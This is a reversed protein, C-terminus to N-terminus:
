SITCFVSGVQHSEGPALESVRTGGPVLFAFVYGHPARLEPHGSEAFREHLRESAIRYPERLLIGLNPQPQDAPMQVPKRDVHDTRM